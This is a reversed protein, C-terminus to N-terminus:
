FNELKTEPEERCTVLELCFLGPENVHMKNNCKSLFTGKYRNGNVDRTEMPSYDRHDANIGRSVTKRRVSSTLTSTLSHKIRRAFVIQANYYLRCCPDSLVVSRSHQATNNGRARTEVTFSNKEVKALSNLHTPLM